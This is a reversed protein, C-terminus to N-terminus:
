IKGSRAISGLVGNIFPGAKDGSYINALEVAENIVIAPPNKKTSLEYAAIRLISLDVRSLRDLSWGHAFEAILDDIKERDAVVGEYLANMFASEAEGPAVELLNLRTDEGGDGGMEWEYVLKMAHARATTRNM